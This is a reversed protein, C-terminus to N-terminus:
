HFTGNCHAATGVEELGLCNYRLYAYLFLWVSVWCDLLYLIAGVKTRVEPKIKLQDSKMGIELNWGKNAYPGKSNNLKPAITPIFLAHQVNELLKQFCSIQCDFNELLGREQITAASPLLSSLVITVNNSHCYVIYINKGHYMREFQGILNRLERHIYKM